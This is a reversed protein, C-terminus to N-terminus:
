EGPVSAKWQDAATKQDTVRMGVTQVPARVWVRDGAGGIEAGDSVVGDCTGERSLQQAGIYVRIDTDEGDVKMLVRSTHLSGLWKVVVTKLRQEGVDAHLRLSGPLLCPVPFSM